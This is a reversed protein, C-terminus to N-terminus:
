KSVMYAWRDLTPTRGPWVTACPSTMAILPLVPKEVPQWRCKMVITFPVGTSGAVMTMKSPLGGGAPLGYTGTSVAVAEALVVGLVVGVGVGDALAVGVGM